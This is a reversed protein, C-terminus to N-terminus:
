RLEDVLVVRLRGAVVADEVLLEGRLLAEDAVALAAVFVDRRVGLVAVPQEGVAELVHPLRVEVIAPPLLLEGLRGAVDDGLVLLQQLHRHLVVLLQHALVALHHPLVVVRHRVLQLALQGGLLGLEAHAHHM